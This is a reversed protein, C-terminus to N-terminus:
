SFSGVTKGPLAWSSCLFTCTAPRERSHVGIQLRTSPAKAAAGM